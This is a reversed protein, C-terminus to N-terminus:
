KFDGCELKSDEILKEASYTKLLIDRYKNAARLYGYECKLRLLKDINNTDQRRFIVDSGICFVIGFAIVSVITIVTIRIM